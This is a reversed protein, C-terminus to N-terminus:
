LAVEGALRAATAPGVADPGGDQSELWELYDAEREAVEARYTACDPACLLHEGCGSLEYRDGAHIWTGCAACHGCDYGYM